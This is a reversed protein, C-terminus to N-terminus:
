RNGAVFLLMLSLVSSFEYVLARVLVLVVTPDLSAGTVSGLVLDAISRGRM